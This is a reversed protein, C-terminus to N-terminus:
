DCRHTALSEVDFRRRSTEPTHSFIAAAHSSSRVLIPEAGNWEYVTWCTVLLHFVSM